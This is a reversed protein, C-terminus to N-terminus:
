QLLQKRKMKRTTIFQQVIENPILKSVTPYSFTFKNKIAHIAKSHKMTKRLEKYEDVFKEQRSQISEPKM